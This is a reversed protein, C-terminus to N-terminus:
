ILMKKEKRPIAPRCSFGTVFWLGHKSSFSTNVRIIFFFAKIISSKFHHLSYLVSSITNVETHKIKLWDPVSGWVSQDWKEWGPKCLKLTIKQIVRCPLLIESRECKLWSMNDARHSFNIMITRQRKKKKNACSLLVYFGLEHQWRIWFGPLGWKEKREGTLEQKQEQCSCLKPVLPLRKAGRYKVWTGGKLRAKSINRISTNKRVM